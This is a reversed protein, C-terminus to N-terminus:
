DASTEGDTLKKRFEKPSEGTNSKFFRAFGSQDPFNLRESIEKLTLEPQSMLIKAYATLKENILTRASMGEYERIIKSLYDPTILLTDAYWKVDHHENCHSDLLRRFSQMIMEQRSTNELTLEHVKRRRDSIDLLLNQVENKVVISQYHHSTNEIYRKLRELSVSLFEFQEATFEQFPYEKKLQVNIPSKRATRMETQFGSSFLIHNGKVDKSTNINRIIDNEQLHLTCNRRVHYTRYNVEVTLEGSEIIILHFNKLRKTSEIPMSGIIERITIREQGYERFTHVKM